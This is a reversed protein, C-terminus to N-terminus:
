STPPIPATADSPDSRRDGVRPAPQFGVKIRTPPREARHRLALRHDTDKDLFARLQQVVTLEEKQQHAMM